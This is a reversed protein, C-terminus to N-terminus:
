LAGPLPTTRRPEIPLIHEFYPKYVIIKQFVDSVVDVVGANRVEQDQAPDLYDVVVLLWYAACPAYQRAKAEKKKIIETLGAKSMLGLSGVQSVRWKATFSLPRFIGERLARAERRNRYEAFATFGKSPDPEGDPFDPDIHPTYV